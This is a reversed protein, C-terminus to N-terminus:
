LLTLYSHRALTDLLLTKCSHRVLTDLLRTWCSHRVFTDLLLTKCSHRVLAKRMLTLCPHGVLTDGWHTLDVHGALPNAPFHSLYTKDRNRLMRIPMRTRPNWKQKTKQQNLGQKKLNQVQQKKSKTRDDRRTGPIYTNQIGGYLSKRSIKSRHECDWLFFTLCFDNCILSCSSDSIKSLAALFQKRFPFGVLFRSPAAERTHGKPSYKSGSCTGNGDFCHLIVQLKSLVHKPLVHSM